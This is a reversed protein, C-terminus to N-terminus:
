GNEGDKGTNTEAAGKTPLITLFRLGSHPEDVPCGTARRPPPGKIVIEACKLYYVKEESLLVLKRATRYGTHQKWENPPHFPAAHTRPLAPFAGRSCSPEGCTDIRGPTAPGVKLYTEIEAPRQRSPFSLCCVREWPRYKATPFNAGENQSKLRARM